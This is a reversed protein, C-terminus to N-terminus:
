IIERLVTVIDAKIKFLKKLITRGGEEFKIIHFISQTKETKEDNPTMNRMNM